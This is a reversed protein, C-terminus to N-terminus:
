LDAHVDRHIVEVRHHNSLIRKRVDNGVVPRVLQGLPVGGARMATIESDDGLRSFTHLVAILVSMSITMVVVFPITLALFEVIVHWPLGKGLLMPLRRAIQNLLMFGTMAAMSFVFPAVHQKMVYRTLVRM